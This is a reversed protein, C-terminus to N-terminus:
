QRTAPLPERVPLPGPEVREIVFPDPAGDDNIKAIRLSAVMEDMRAIAQRIEKPYTAPDLNADFDYQPLGFNAILFRGPRLYTAYSYNRSNYGGSHMADRMWIRGNIAVPEPKLVIRNGKRSDILRERAAREIDAQTQISRERIEIMTKQMREPTSYKESIEPAIIRYFISAGSSDYRREWISPPGYTYWGLNAVRLSGKSQKLFKEMGPDPQRTDNYPSIFSSGSDGEPVKMTLVYEDLEIRYHEGPKLLNKTPIEIHPSSHPPSEEYLSRLASMDDRNIGYRRMRAYLEERQENFRKLEPNREEARTMARKVGVDQILVDVPTCGYLISAILAMFLVKRTSM